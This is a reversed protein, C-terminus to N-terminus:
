YFLYAAQFVIIEDFFLEKKYVKTALLKNLL